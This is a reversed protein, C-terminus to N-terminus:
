ILQILTLLYWLLLVQEDKTISTSYPFHICVFDYLYLLLLEKDLINALNYKLYSLSSFQQILLSEFEKLNDKETITRYSTILNDLYFSFPFKSQYHHDNYGNTSVQIKKNINLSINFMNMDKISREFLYFWIKRIKENTTNLIYITSNKVM